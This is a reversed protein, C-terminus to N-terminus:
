YNFGHLCRLDPLKDRHCDYRYYIIAHTKCPLRNENSISYVTDCINNVLTKKIDRTRFLFPILKGKVGEKGLKDLYVNYELQVDRLRRNKSYRVNDRKFAALVDESTTDIFPKDHIRKWYLSRLKMINSEESEQFVVVAGPNDLFHKRYERVVRPNVNYLSHSFLILNFMLEDLSDNRQKRIRVLVKTNYSESIDAEITKAQPNNKKYLKLAEPQQDIGIINTYNTQAIEDGAGCGLDLVSPEYEEQRLPCTIIDKHTRFIDDIIRIQTESRDTVDHWFGYAKEFDTFFETYTMKLPCRTRYKFNNEGWTRFM